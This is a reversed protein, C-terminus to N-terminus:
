DNADDEKKNKIDSKDEKVIVQVNIEPKIEFFAKDM